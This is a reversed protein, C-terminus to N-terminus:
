ELKQELEGAKSQDKLINLRENFYAKTYATLDGLYGAGILGPGLIASVQANTEQGGFSSILSVICFCLGSFKAIDSFVPQHNTMYDQTMFNSILLM